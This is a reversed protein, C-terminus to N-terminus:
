CVARKEYLSSNNLECLSTMCARHLLLLFDVCIFDLSIWQGLRTSLLRTIDTDNVPGHQEFLPEIMQRIERQSEDDLSMAANVFLEGSKTM